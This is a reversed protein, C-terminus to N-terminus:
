STFHDRSLMRMVRGIAVVRCHRSCSGTGSCPPIAEAIDNVVGEGKEFMFGLNSQAVAHGQAAALQYWRVAEAYDQAVGVSKGFM